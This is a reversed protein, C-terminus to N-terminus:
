KNLFLESQVLETILSRVGYHSSSARELIREIPERDAFRVPAGTAYICLQKALNRAVQKENALLLQKLEIVDHFKRGDPLEGSADVPLAYHFSFKQGSKAIGPEPTGSGEARYRDRWGGM